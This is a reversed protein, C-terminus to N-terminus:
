AKTAMELTQHSKTASQTAAERNQGNVNGRQILAASVVNLVIHQENQVSDWVFKRLTHDDGSLAGSLASSSRDAASFAIFIPSMQPSVFRAQAQM